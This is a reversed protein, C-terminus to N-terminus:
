LHRYLFVEMVLSYFCLRFWSLIEDSSDLISDSWASFIACIDAAFVVWSASILLVLEASVRTCRGSDCFVIAHFYLSSNAPGESELVSPLIEARQTLVIMAAKSDPPSPM